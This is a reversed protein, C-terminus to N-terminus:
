QRVNEEVINMILTMQEQLSMCLCTKKSDDKAKRVGARYRPLEQDCHQASLGAGFVNEPTAGFGM